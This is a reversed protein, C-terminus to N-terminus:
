GRFGMGVTVVNSTATDCVQFLWVAVESTRRVEVMVLNMKQEIMLEELFVTKGGEGVEAAEGYLRVGERVLRKLFEGCGLEEQKRKRRKNRMRQKKNAM